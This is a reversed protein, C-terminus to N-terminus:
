PSIVYYDIYELAPAPISPNRCSVFQTEVGFLTARCMWMGVKDPMFTCLLYGSIIM